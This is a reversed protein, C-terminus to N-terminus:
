RGEAQALEDLEAAVQLLEDGAVLRALDLLSPASEEQLEELMALQEMEQTVDEYTWDITSVDVIPPTPTPM